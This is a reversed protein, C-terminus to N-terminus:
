PRKLHISLKYIIQVCNFNGNNYPHTISHLTKTNEYTRYNTRETINNGLRVPRPGKQQTTYRYIPTKGQHFQKDM